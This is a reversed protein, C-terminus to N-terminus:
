LRKIIRGHGLSYISMEMTVRDGRLVRVRHKRIRGSIHAVASIDGKTKDLIKSLAEQDTQLANMLSKKDIVVRFEGGPLQDTVYGEVIVIDESENAM